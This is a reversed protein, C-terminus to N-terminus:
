VGGVLANILAPRFGLGALAINGYRRLGDGHQLIVTDPLKLLPEPEALIILIAAIHERPVVARRHVRVAHRCPKVAEGLAVAQRVYVGVGEPM